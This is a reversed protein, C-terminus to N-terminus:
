DTEDQGVEGKGIQAGLALHLKMFLYRKNIKSQKLRWLAWLQATMFTM